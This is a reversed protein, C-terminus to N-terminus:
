FANNPHSSYFSPLQNTTKQGNSIRNKRDLDPGSDKTPRFFGWRFIIETFFSALGNHARILLSLWVDKSNITVIQQQGRAPAAFLIITLCGVFRKQM